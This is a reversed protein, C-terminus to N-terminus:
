QLYYSRFLDSIIINSKNSKEMDMYLEEPDDQGEPIREMEEYFLEQDDSTSGAQYNQYIESDVSTYQDSGPQDQIQHCLKKDVTEEYIKCFDGAKGKMPVYHYSGDQSQKKVYHGEEEDKNLNIYRKGEMDVYLEHGGGNMPVYIYSGDDKQMKTYYEEEGHEM